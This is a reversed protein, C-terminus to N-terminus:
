KSAVVGLMLPVESMGEAVTFRNGALPRMGAIPRWGNTYPWERLTEIRLGADVMASVLEGVSWAFEQTAHPNKFKGDSEIYGSPALTAGADAVYDNVGEAFTLPQGHSSYPHRLHWEEDLMLAVPHFDVLVYRGGPALMAAVGQYFRRLDSLWGYTGYSQFVRDFGHGERAARPLWDYVDAREFHAAIGSEQSLMQAFAIAEDSFDVGTVRAGMRALSLSDQGANCQLHLLTRGSLAGLLELEEPFLTSGGGRLFAAQDRKHANHAATAANWSRRNQEHLERKM